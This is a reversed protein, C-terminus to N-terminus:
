PWNRPEAGAKSSANVNSRWRSRSRDKLISWDDVRISAPLSQGRQDVTNLSVNQWTGFLEALLPDPESHSFRRAVAQAIGRFQNTFHSPYDALEAHLLEVLHITKPVLRHIYGYEVIKITNAVAPELSAIHAIFNNRHLDFRKRLDDGNVYRCCEILAQSKPRDPFERPDNLKKIPHQLNPDSYEGEDYLLAWLELIIAKEKTL